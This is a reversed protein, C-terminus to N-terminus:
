VRVLKRLSIQFKPEVFKAIAYSIGCLISIPIIPVLFDPMPRLNTGIVRIMSVALNEHLLYFPYSIFGAFLLVKASLARKIWPFNSALVFLLVLVGSLAFVLDLKWHASFLAVVVGALGFASLKVVTWRKSYDFVLVGLLFWGFHQLSLSISVQKLLVCGVSSADRAGLIDAFLSLLFLFALVVRAGTPKLLYYAGGFLFYFKVEAFLSWFVGELVGIQVGTVKSLWGPEVFLIGPILDILNPLGSPRHPFAKATVFVLASVVFMAPFLRVWRRKLFELFSGCRELTMSIVFGSIM